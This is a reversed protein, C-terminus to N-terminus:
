CSTGSLSILLSAHCSFLNNTSITTYCYPCIYLNTGVTEYYAHSHFFDTCKLLIWHLVSMMPPLFAIIFFVSCVKSSFPPYLPHRVCHHLPVSEKSVSPVEGTQIHVPRTDAPRGQMDDDGQDAFSVHRHLRWRSPPPPPPPPPPTTASDTRYFARSRKWRSNERTGEARGFPHRRSGAGTSCNARAAHVGAFCFFFLSLFCIIDDCVCVCAGAVVISVPIDNSPISITIM